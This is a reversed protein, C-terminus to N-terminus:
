ARRVNELKVVVEGDASRVTCVMHQHRVDDYRNERPDPLAYRRTPALGSRSTQNETHGLHVTTTDLM